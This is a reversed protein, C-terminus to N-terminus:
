KVAVYETYICQIYIYVIDTHHTYIRKVWWTSINGKVGNQVGFFEGLIVRSRGTLLPLCTPAVLVPLRNRQSKVWLVQSIFMLVSCILRLIDFFLCYCSSKSLLSFQYHVLEISQDLPFLFVRTHIRTHIYMYIYIHIYIHTHINM